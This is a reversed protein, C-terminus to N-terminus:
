EPDDHVIELQSASNNKGKTKENQLLLIAFIIGAAASYTPGVFWGVIPILALGFGVLGFVFVSGFNKWMLRFADRHTYGSRDLYPDIFAVAGLFMQLPFLLAGSIIVGIVPILGILFAGCISALTGSIVLLAMLFPRKISEYVTREIEHPRGKLLKEAETSLQELFPGYCIMVLSRFCIYSTGIAFSFILIGWVVTLWDPIDYFKELYNQIWNSIVTSAAFSAGMLAIFLAISLGIPIMLFQWNGKKWLLEHAKRYSAAPRGIM